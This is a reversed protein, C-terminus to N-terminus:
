ATPFVRGRQKTRASLPAAEIKAVIDTYHRHHHQPPAEVIVREAMLMGRQVREGRLRVDIGLKRVEAELVALDLGNAVLAALFMDGSVGSFCDLYALKM